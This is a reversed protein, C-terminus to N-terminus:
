RAEERRFALGTDRYYNTQRGNEAALARTRATLEEDLRYDVSALRAIWYADPQCNVHHWGNQGPVAHTMLVLEASAFTALFNPAFREEIHEVFECSWCVDFPVGPEYPGTEYDHCIFGQLGRQPIGDVGRTFCGLARFYDLAHGEGCGVDIVSRVGLEEVLWDFLAPYYSHVDGGPIYGGLHGDVVMGHQMEPMLPDGLLPAM